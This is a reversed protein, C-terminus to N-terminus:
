CSRSGEWLLNEWGVAENRRRDKQVVVPISASVRERDKCLEQMGGAVEKLSGRVRTMLEVMSEIAVQSARETTDGLSGEM